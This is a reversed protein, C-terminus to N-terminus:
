VREWRWGDKDIYGDQNLTMKETYGFPYVLFLTGDEIRYVGSFDMNNQTFSITFTNDAYLTFTSGDKYSFTEKKEVCGSLLTLIVLFLSIIIKHNM